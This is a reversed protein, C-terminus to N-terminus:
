AMIDGNPGNKSTRPRMRPEVYDPELQRSFLTKRGKVLMPTCGINGIERLGKGEEESGGVTEIKGEERFFRRLSGKKPIKREDERGFTKSCSEYM